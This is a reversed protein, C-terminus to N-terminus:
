YTKGGSYDIPTGLIEGGNQTVKFYFTENRKYDVCEPRSGWSTTTTTIKWTGSLNPYCASLLLVIVLVPLLLRGARM